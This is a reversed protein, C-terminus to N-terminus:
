QPTADKLVLRFRKKGFSSTDSTIVKFNYKKLCVNVSDKLYNDKLWVQINAPMTHEYSIGLQYDGDIKARVDLAISMGPMYPVQNISLDIGDSSVSALSVQGFGTFYPADNSSSYKYTALHNFTLM